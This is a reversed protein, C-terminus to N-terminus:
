NKMLIMQEIKNNQTPYKRIRYFSHEIVWIPVPETRSMTIFTYTRITDNPDALRRISIVIRGHSLYDLLWYVILVMRNRRRFNIINRLVIIFYCWRLHIISCTRKYLCIWLWTSTLLRGFLIINPIPIFTFFIYRKRSTSTWKLLLKRYFLVFHYWIIIWNWLINKIFCGFLLNRVM